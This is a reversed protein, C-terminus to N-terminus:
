FLLNMLHHGAPDVGFFQVDAMHSIWTLPHWNAAYGTKFAWLIGAWSLGSKVHPDGTIYADDDFNIFGHSLIPFYLAFTGAALGFCIATTLRKRSLELM